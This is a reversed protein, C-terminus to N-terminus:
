QSVLGHTFIRFTGYTIHKFLIGRCCLHLATCHKRQVACSVAIVSCVIMQRELGKMTQGDEDAEVDEVCKITRDPHVM